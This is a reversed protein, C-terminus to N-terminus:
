NELLALIEEYSYYQGYEYGPKARNMDFVGNLSINYDEESMEVGNWYYKYILKGTEDIQIDTNDEAGYNGQAIVTMQGDLISYVVDYYGDMLGESNCLLNEREIYSFYTRRLQQEKVQGNTYYVIKCGAAECSGIVALEPIDDNDVYILEYGSVGAEDYTNRIYDAFSQKWIEEQQPSEPVAADQSVFDLINQIMKESIQNNVRESLDSELFFSGDSSGRYLRAESYVPNAKNDPVYSCIIIIDDYGDQNYDPFSVAEVKHFTENERANTEYMGPLVVVVQGDKLLKFVADGYINRSTDPGYSAFTVNGLPKLETDFTQDSILREEEQNESKEEPKEKIEEPEEKKIKAKDPKNDTENEIVEDSVSSAKETTVKEKRNCSSLVCCVLLAGILIKKRM